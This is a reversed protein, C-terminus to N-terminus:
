SVSIYLAVGVVISIGIMATTFPYISELVEGSPRSYAELVEGYLLGLLPWFVGAIAAAVTGIIIIWWENANLSLLRRLSVQSLDSDDKETTKETLAGLNSIHSSQSHRTVLLKRTKRDMRVRAQSHPRAHISNAPTSARSFRSSSRAIGRQLNNSVDDGVEM